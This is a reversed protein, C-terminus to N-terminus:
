SRPFNWKKGKGVQFFVQFFVRNGCYSKSEWWMLLLRVFNSCFWRLWQRSTYLIKYYTRVNIGTFQMFSPWTCYHLASLAHLWLYRMWHLAKCCHIGPERPTPAWAQFFHRCCLQVPSKAFYGATSRCQMGFIHADHITYVNLVVSATALLLRLPSIILLM